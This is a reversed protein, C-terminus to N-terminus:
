IADTVIALPGMVLDAPDGVVDLRGLPQQALLEPDPRPGPERVDLEPASVVVSRPSGTRKMTCTDSALAPSRWSSIMWGTSPGVM